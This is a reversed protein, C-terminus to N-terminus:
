SGARPFLHRKIKRLPASLKWSRSNQMAALDYQLRQNEDRLRTVEEQQQSIAIAAQAKETDTRELYDFVTSLNPLGRDDTEIGIGSLREILHEAAFVNPDFNLLEYTRWPKIASMHLYTDYHNHWGRERKERQIRPLRDQFVKTAAQAASRFPYHRTLFKLPYLRSGPFFVVHGASSALDVLQGSNKWAKVQALHAGHRGFDFFRMTDPSFTSQHATDTFAFNLVTFDIASYGLSDVFTVAEALTANRWPSSRFEDADYHIIWDANLGKAYQATHQLLAAWHYEHGPQDPFRLANACLGDNLLASIINWTNDTSWNDVIHVAVGQSHLYRVVPEIVDEENYVNIIAAISLSPRNRVLTAERGGIALVTNKARDLNNNETYGLFAPAFGCDGLFRGLEDASWEMTHSGNAPPGNDLLGRARVRDPTSLLVYRATQSAPALDRLLIEPSRLHEIVDSCVVIADSLLGDLDPLGRELDCEIFRAHPVNASVFPRMLPADLCVIEIAPDLGKLKEASGSGIDIVRKCGSRELLYRLFAYVQHQHVTGTPADLFHANDLRINYDSPLRRNM